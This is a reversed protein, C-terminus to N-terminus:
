PVPSAPVRRYMKSPWVCIPVSTIGALPTQVKVGAALMSAPPCTKVAVAMSAAPLALPVDLLQLM